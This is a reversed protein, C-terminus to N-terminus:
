ESEPKKRLWLSSEIAGPARPLDNIVTTALRDALATGAYHSAFVPAYRGGPAILSAVAVQENYGRWAWALPYPDPLFIDHIHILAGGPLRPLIDNIVIDVDSGPMLIHSSDVVLFDDARWPALSPPDVRQLPERIINIPLDAIAARPAPDIATVTAEISGDVLARAIFRTSHGSGIEVIRSPRHHRILAYLVAADLTAFWDQGWRPAPPVGDPAIAMLDARYTDLLEIVADFQDDAAAFEEAVQEYRRRDAPAIQGAYRYPIFFGRPSPGLVTALGMRLRRFNM